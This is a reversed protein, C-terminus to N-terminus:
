QLRSRAGANIQVHPASWRPENAGLTTFIMLLPRDLVTDEAIEIVAGDRTTAANLRAFLPANSPAIRALAHLAREPDTRALESLFRVSVATPLSTLDSSAADFHGNVFVLRYASIAALPLPLPASSPEASKLSRQSLNNLDTYKWDEERPTPLGRARADCFTRERWADLSSAGGGSAHAPALSEFFNM